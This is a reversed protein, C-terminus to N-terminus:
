PAELNLTDILVDAAAPDLLARLEAVVTAAIPAALRGAEALPALRRLIALLDCLRGSAPPQEFQQLFPPYPHSIDVTNGTGSVNATSTFQWLGVATRAYLPPMYDFVGEPGGAALLWEDMHGERYLSRDADRHPYGPVMLIHPPGPARTGLLSSLRKSSYWIPVRGWIESMRELADDIWAMLPEGTLTSVEVDLMPSFDFGETTRAAWTDIQQLAPAMDPRAFLYGSTPVGLERFRRLHFNYYTDDGDGRAWAKWDTWRVLLADLQPAMEEPVVPDQAYSIDAIIM